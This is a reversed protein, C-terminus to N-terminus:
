ESVEQGRLLISPDQAIIRSFERLDEAADRIYALSVVFDERGARIILDAEDLLTATEKLARTLEKIAVGAEADSLRNNLNEMAKRAAIVTKNLEAGDVASVTKDVSALAGRATKATQALERDFVDLTTMARTEFAATKRSVLAVAELTDTLPDHADVILADVDFILKDMGDLIREVRLRNEDGTWKALQNAIVEAKVVVAEAKGTVRDLFSEGPLLRSGPPIRPQRPDGGTLNITKLGTLGSTDMVATTGEHLPTGAELSLVVEIEGPSDAAIAMSDVRGVRLGQYKVQASPELGGVSDSFRVSYVDREEWVRLGALILISGGLVTAGTILFAGLRVKQAKTLNM